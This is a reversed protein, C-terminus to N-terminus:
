VSMISHSNRFTLRFDKFNEFEKPKEVRLDLEKILSYLRRISINLEEAALLKTKNNDLSDQILEKKEARSLFKFPSIKGITIGVRNRLTSFNSPSIELFEAVKNWDNDEKEYLFWLTEADLFSRDILDETLGMVQKALKEKRDLHITSNYYLLHAVQRPGTIGNCRLRYLNKKGDPRVQGKFNPIHDVIFERFGELLEPSASCLGIDWGSKNGRKRELIWGDGDVLGRWYHRVLNDPVSSCPKINFTKNSDLGLKRLFTVLKKSGISIRAVPTNCQGNREIVPHTSNISLRFKKLHEKDKIGLQISVIYKGVHGDASIFGLWYAKAETDIKKFFSENVSYKRNSRQKYVGERKLLNFVGTESLPFMRSISAIREGGRYLRIIENTQEKTVKRNM